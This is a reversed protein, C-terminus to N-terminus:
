ICVLFVVTFVITYDGHFSALSVISPSLKTALEQSLENWCLEQSLNEAVAKRDSLISSVEKVRKRTKQRRNSGRARRKVKLMKVALVPTGVCARRRVKLRKVALVPTGVCASTSNNERYMLYNFIFQM